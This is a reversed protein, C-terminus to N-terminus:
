VAAATVVVHPAIHASANLRDRWASRAVSPHLWRQLELGWSAATGRGGRADLVCHLAFGAKSM